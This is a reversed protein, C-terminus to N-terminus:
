TGNKPANTAAKPWAITVRQLALRRPMKQGSIFAAKTIDPPPLGRAAVRRRARSPVAAVPRYPCPSCRGRSRLPLRTAFRRGTSLAPKRLEQNRMRPHTASVTELTGAPCLRFNRM